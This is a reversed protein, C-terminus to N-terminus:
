RSSGGKKKSSSSSSKRKKDKKKSRSSGGKKKSSSSSSKRKGHHQTGRALRKDRDKDLQARYAAMKKVDVGELNLQDHNDKKYQEWTPRNSDALKQAITREQQGTM